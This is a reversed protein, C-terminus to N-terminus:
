RERAELVAQAALGPRLKTALVAHTMRTYLDIVTYYYLRKGSYPDVHHITDTQVLEGPKTPLPRRPNSGSSELNEPAM